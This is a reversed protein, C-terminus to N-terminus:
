SLLPRADSSIAKPRSGAVIGLAVGAGLGIM